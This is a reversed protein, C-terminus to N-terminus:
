SGHDYATFNRDLGVIYYIQEKRFGIMAKKGSFRFVICDADNSFFAPIHFKMQKCPMIECGGKHKGRQKLERWTQKSLQHLTDSFAAKEEKNCHSLCFHGTLYELAFVPHFGDTSTIVKAGDPFPTKLKPSYFKM